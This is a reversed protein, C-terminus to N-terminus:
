DDRRRDIKELGGSLVKGDLGCASLGVAVISDAGSCMECGDPMVAFM